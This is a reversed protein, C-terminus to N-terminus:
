VNLLSVFLCVFLVSQLSRRRLTIVLELLTQSLLRNQAPTAGTHTPMAKRVQASIVLFNNPTHTHTHARTHTQTHTQKHIYTHAHTHTHTHM